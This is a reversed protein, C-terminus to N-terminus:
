TPTPATRRTSRNSSSGAAGHRRIVRDGCLVRTVYAHQEGTPSAPATAPGCYTEALGHLLYEAEDYSSSLPTDDVPVSATGDIAQLRVSGRGDLIDHRSDTTSAGTVSSSACVSSRCRAPRPEHSSRSRTSSNRGSRNALGAAALHARVDDVTPATQGQHVRVVAAAREGLREDPAAVVSVEAVSEIGLMLEEIEVPSINEGGRIIVDSIRDTISLYGDADIVGADGTTGATTTSSRSPSRRTPTASSCNRDGPSSRASTTSYCKSGSSRM